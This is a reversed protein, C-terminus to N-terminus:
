RLGGARCPLLRTARGTAAAHTPDSGLDPEPPRSGGTQDGRKPPTGAVPRHVAPHLRVIEALLHADATDSKAGSTPHRERYRAVSMPNIPFVGYGAAVLAAV